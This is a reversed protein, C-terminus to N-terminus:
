QSRNDRIRSSVPIVSPETVQPNVSHFIQWGMKLAVVLGVHQEDRALDPSFDRGERSPLLDGGTIRTGVLKPHFFSEIEGHRSAFPIAQDNHVHIKGLHNFREPDNRLTIPITRVM